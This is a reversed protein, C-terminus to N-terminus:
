WNACRAPLRRRISLWGRISRLRRAGRERPDRVCGSHRHDADVDDRVSHNHGDRGPLQSQSRESEALLRPPQHRAPARHRGSWVGCGSLARAVNGARTGRARLRHRDEPISGAATRLNQLLGRRLDVGGRARGRPAAAVCDVHLRSLVHAARRIGARVSVRATRHAPGHRVVRADRARHVSEAVSQPGVDGRVVAM